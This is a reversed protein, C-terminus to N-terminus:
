GRMKRIIFGVLLVVLVIGIVATWAGAKFIDGALECSSLSFTLLVLCLAFFSQFRKM